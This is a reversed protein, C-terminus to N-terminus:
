VGMFGTRAAIPPGRNVCPRRGARRSRDTTQHALDFFRRRRRPLRPPYLSQSSRTAVAHGTNPTGRRPGAIGAAQPYIQPGRRIRAWQWQDTPRFEQSNGCSFGRCPGSRHQRKRLRTDTGRLYSQSLGIEPQAPSWAPRALRLAHLKREHRGFLRTSDIQGVILDRFYKPPVIDDRSIELNSGAVRVALGLDIIPVPIVQENLNVPSHAPAFRCGSPRPLRCGSPRPLRCGSPRPLRFDSPRPLRCGSPRPLQGM